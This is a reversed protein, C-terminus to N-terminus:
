AELKKAKEGLSELSKLVGKWDGSLVAIAVGVISGVFEIAKKAKEIKALTQQTKAVAKEIQKAADSPPQNFLVVTGRALVVGAQENALKAANRLAAREAADLNGDMSRKALDEAAGALAGLLTLDTSVLELTEATTAM